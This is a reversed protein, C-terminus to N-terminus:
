LAVEVCAEVVFRASTGCAKFERGVPFAVPSRDVITLGELLGSTFRKTVDFRQSSQPSSSALM